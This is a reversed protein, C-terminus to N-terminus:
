KWNVVAELVKLQSGSPDVPAGRISHWKEECNFRGILLKQSLGGM